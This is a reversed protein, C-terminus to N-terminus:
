LGEFREKVLIRCMGSNMHFKGIFRGTENWYQLYAM